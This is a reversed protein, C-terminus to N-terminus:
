KGRCFPMLLLLRMSRMGGTARVSTELGRGDGVGVCVFPPFFSLRLVTDLCCAECPKRRRTAACVEVPCSESVCDGSRGPVLHISSFFGPTRPRKKLQSALIKVFLFLSGRFSGGVTVRDPEVALMM